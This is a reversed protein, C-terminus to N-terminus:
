NNTPELMRDTLYNSQINYEKGKFLTYDVCKEIDLDGVSSEYVFSKDKDLVIYYDCITNYIIM